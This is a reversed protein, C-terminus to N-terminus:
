ALREEALRKALHKEAGRMACCHRDEWQPEIAGTIAIPSENLSTPLVIRNWSCAILEDREAKDWLTICLLRHPFVM